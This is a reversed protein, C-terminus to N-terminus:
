GAYLLNDFCEDEPIGNVKWPYNLRDYNFRVETGDETKMDIYTAGDSRLPYFVTGKPLEMTTNDKTLEVNLPVISIIEFGDEINYADDKMEPTGDEDSVMYNAFGERTGLIEFRAELTFHNPDNFVQQYVTGEEFEEEIFEGYFGVSSLEAIQKIEADNIDLACIKHYDDDSWSDSYIYNKDDDHVLYVSFDYVYNIEDKYTKGNVVVSLMEYSGYQDHTTRAFVLDKKGDDSVLDFDIDLGIPLTIVYRQPAEVYKKNFMDPYEDFWIKASPTGDAYSAIEYPSFWFTIGQYDITWTFEAAKYADFREKLDTFEIGEYKETLKKELIASLEKTDTLVDSLSVEEGTGPDYNIGNWFIDPHVGGSNIFVRELLSVIYKDTRQPYFKSEAGCYLPNYEDGSLEKVIPTFEYMQAKAETLSDANLKDFTQALEPYVASHYESLRLKHWCARTIVNNEHWDEIFADGLMVDIFPYIGELNPNKWIKGPIRYCGTLSILICFTTLICIIRKRSM